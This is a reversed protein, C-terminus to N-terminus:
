HLLTSQLAWEYNGQVGNLVEEPHEHKAILCLLESDYHM